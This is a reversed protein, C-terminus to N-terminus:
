ESITFEYNVMRGGRELDVTIRSEGQISQWMQYLKETSDVPHGNVRMVIDGNRAGLRYLISSPQVRFLKYGAIRGDVRHPGARLGRLANDMNNLVKQQLESRSLTQKVKGEQPAPSPIQGPAGAQLPSAFMDIIEVKDNMKLFVKSDDIRVLKFGYVNNWLKFIVPDKETSRKILARSISPPGSITGLLQLDSLASSSAAQNEPSEPGALKFFGSDLVAQYDEFSRTPTQGSTIRPRREQREDLSVFGIRIFQTATSALIFSFVTVSVTNLAHYKINQM